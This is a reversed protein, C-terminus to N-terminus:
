ATQLFTTCREAAEQCWRDRLGQDVLFLDVILLPHDLGLDLPGILRPGEQDLAARHINLDLLVPDVTKGLHAQLDVQDPRLM